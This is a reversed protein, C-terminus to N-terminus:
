LKYHHKNLFDVVRRMQQDTICRDEQAGNFKCCGQGVVALVEYWALRRLLQM